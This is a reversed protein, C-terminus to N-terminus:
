AALLAQQIAYDDPMGDDGLVAMLGAGGVGGGLLGLGALVSGAMRTRENGLVNLPNSLEEYLAEQGKTIGATEGRGYGAADGLGYGTDAAYAITNQFRGDLTGLVQQNYAMDAAIKARVDEGVTKPDIGNASLAVDVDKGYVFLLKAKEGEGLQSARPTFQGKGKSGGFLESVRGQVSATDSEGAKNTYPYGLYQKEGGVDISKGKIAALVAQGVQEPPVGQAALIEALRKPTVGSM